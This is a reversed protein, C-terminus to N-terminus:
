LMVSNVIKIFEEARKGWTHNAIFIDYTNKVMEDRKQMAEDIKDRFDSLDNKFQICTKGDVFIDKYTEPIESCMLTTKCLPTEFYRPTIDGFAAPTAIWIKTQCMIRAYDQYDQIRPSVSDSGNLFCKLGRDNSLVKQINSRINNTYFSGKIYLNNNHLAGSFGVDYEKGINMDHFVNENAAYCFRITPIGISKEYDNFCPLSTLIRDIKNCICFNLKGNLNTQPKFVFSFKPISINDLGDIKHFYQWGLGFLIVDPVFSCKNLAQHISAIDDRFLFCEHNKCLSDYLGDYYAYINSTQTKVVSDM